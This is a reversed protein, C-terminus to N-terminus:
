VPVAFQEVHKLCCARVRARIRNIYKARETVSVAGRADLLNFVHSCKLALDLAPYVLAKPGAGAPPTGEAQAATLIGQKEDWFVETEIVRKSEEEYMDFMKFLMDTSAVEFNYVNDQLELQYDVDKYSLDDSWQLDKWFSQQNNLM